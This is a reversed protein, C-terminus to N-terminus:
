LMNRKGLQCNLVFQAKYGLTRLGNKLTRVTGQINSRIVKGEDDSIVYYYDLFVPYDDPLIEEGPMIGTLLYKKAKEKAEAQEQQFKLKQTNEVQNVKKFNKKAEKALRKEEETYQIM